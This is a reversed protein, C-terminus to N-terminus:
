PLLAHMLRFIGGGHDVVYVEGSEDEGFSSIKLGSEVILTNTWEGDTTQLLAWILGSCYDGYVYSGQLSKLSEGRYVYGGTVSCGGDSHHYEIIPAVFANYDCGKKYCHSGEMRSWGYNEAGRSGAPQFDIEEWNNQGVDGIYLDGTLRDFSFRWPNRLGYVWIEPAGHGNRLLPNDPPVAFGQPYAVDVRLIAGLWTLPNQGNDHPDGAKGGDGFGIYLYGDPGFAIQGGNHNHYPQTHTLVIGDGKPDARNRDTSTAFRQVVTDGNLDSYHVFLHGNRGHDPHFALGLLGQELACCGVRDRIDLFAPSIIKGDQLIWIVGAQEVVFLRGSGDGAHTLYTPKQLGDAALELEYKAGQPMLSPAAPNLTTLEETPVATSISASSTTAETASTAKASLITAEYHPPRCAGLGLAAVSLGRLLCKM